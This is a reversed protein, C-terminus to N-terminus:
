EDSEKIPDAKALLETKRESGASSDFYWKLAMPFAAILAGVMAQALDMQGMHLMLSLVAFFGIVIMLALGFRQTNM